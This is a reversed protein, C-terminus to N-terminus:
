PSTMQAVLLGSGFALWVICVRILCAGSRTTLVNTKCRSRAVFVAAVPLLACSECPTHDQDVGWMVARFNGTKYAAPLNFSAKMKFTTPVAGPDSLSLAMPETPDCGKNDCVFYPLYGSATFHQMGDEWWQVKFTGAIIKKTVKGQFELFVAEGASWPLGSLSQSSCLLATRRDFRCAPAM